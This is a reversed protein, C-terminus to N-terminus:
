LSFNRGSGASRLGRGSGAENSSSLSTGRGDSSASASAGASGGTGRFDASASGRLRTGGRGRSRGEVGSRGVALEGGGKNGRHEEASSSQQLFGANVSLLRVRINIRAYIILRSTAGKSRIQIM